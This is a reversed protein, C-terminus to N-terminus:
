PRPPGSLRFKKRTPVNSPILLFFFFFVGSTKYEQFWIQSTPTNFLRKIECALHPNPLCLFLPPRMMSKAKIPSALCVSSPPPLHSGSHSAVTLSRARGGSEGASLLAVRLDQTLIWLCKCFWPLVECFWPLDAQVEAKAFSHMWLYSISRRVRVGKLNEKFAGKGAKGPLIGATSKWM